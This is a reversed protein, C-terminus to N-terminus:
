KASMPGEHSKCEYVLLPHKYSCCIIITTNEEFRLSGLVSKEVKQASLGILKKLYLVLDWKSQYKSVGNNVFLIFTKM